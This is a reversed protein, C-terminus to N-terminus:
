DSTFRPSRGEFYSNIAELVDPSSQLEAVAELELSETGDLVPDFCQNIIKKAAAQSRPPSKHLKAAVANVASNLDGDKVVQHVLGLEGARKARFKDGVMILQKANAPGIMRVLRHTGWLIPLGLRIESLSFVTRESAIRFDCCLALLIGGGICFGRIAAITPKNLNEFLGVSRQHGAIMKQVSEESDNLKSRIETPDFGTSFHRGKSQLVVSWIDSRGQLYDSIDGLEDITETDLTDGVESRNLSLRALHEEDELIWNKYVNM